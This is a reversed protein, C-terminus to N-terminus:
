QYEDKVEEITCIRTGFDVTRFFESVDENERPYLTAWGEHVVPFFFVSGDERYFVPDEPNDFGWAPIWSWLDDSIELFLKKLEECCNFYRVFIHVHVVTDKQPYYCFDGDQRYKMKKVISPDLVEFQELQEYNKLQEEKFILSVYESHCFCLDLLREFDKGKIEVDRDTADDYDYFRIGMTMVGKKLIM